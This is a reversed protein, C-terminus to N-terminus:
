RGILLYPVGGIEYQDEEYSVGYAEGICDCGEIKVPLDEDYNNLLEKLKKVTLQERTEVYGHYAM